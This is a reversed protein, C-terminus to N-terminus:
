AKRGVECKVRWANRHVRRITKLLKDPADSKALYAAAGVDFM